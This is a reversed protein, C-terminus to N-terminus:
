QKKIIGRCWCYLPWPVSSSGWDHRQAYCCQHDVFLGIYGESEHDWDLRISTKQTVNKRGPKHREQYFPWMKYFRLIGSRRLWPDVTCYKLWSISQGRGGKMVDCIKKGQFQLCRSSKGSRKTTWNMCHRWSHPRGHDKIRAITRSSTQHTRSLRFPIASIPDHFIKYSMGRQICSVM